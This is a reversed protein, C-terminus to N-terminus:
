VCVRSFYACVCDPTHTLDSLVTMGSANWAYFFFICVCACVWVYLCVCVYMCGKGGVCVCVCMCVCVFVCVCMWMYKRLQGQACLARRCLHVSLEPHWPLSIYRQWWYVDSIYRQWRYVHYRHGPVTGHCRYTDNGGSCMDNGGTGNKPTRINQDFLSKNIRSM